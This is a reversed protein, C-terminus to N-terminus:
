NARNQKATIGQLTAALLMDQQALMMREQILSNVLYDAAHDQEQKLEYYVRETKHNQKVADHYIKILGAGFTIWLANALVFKGAPAFKSKSVAETWKPLTNKNFKSEELKTLVELEKEAVKVATEPFHKIGSELMKARNTIFLAAAGLIVGLDVLLSQIPHKREFKRFGPSGSAIGQKIASYIGIGGLVLAWGGATKGVTYARAPLNSKPISENIAGRTELIGRSIIDAAPLSLMLMLANRKEKKRQRPTNTISYALNALQSDDMSVFNVADQIRDRSKFNVESNGIKQIQM